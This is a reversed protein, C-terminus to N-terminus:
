LAYIYENTSCHNANLNNSPESIFALGLQPETVIQLGNEKPLSWSFLQQWLSGFLADMSLTHAEGQMSTSEINELVASSTALIKSMETTVQARLGVEAKAVDEIGPLLNTTEDPTAINKGDAPDKQRVLEYFSSVIVLLRLYTHRFGRDFYSHAQNETVESRLLSALSAAAM